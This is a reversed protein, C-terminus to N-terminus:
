IASRRDESDEENSQIKKMIEARYEDGSMKGEQFKIKALELRTDEIQESLKEFDEATLDASTSIEELGALFTDLGISGNKYDDELDAAKQMEVASNAEM